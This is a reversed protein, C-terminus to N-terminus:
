ALTRAAATAWFPTTVATRYLRGTGSIFVDACAAFRDTMDIDPLSDAPATPGGGDVQGNPM